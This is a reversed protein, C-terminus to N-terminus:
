DKPEVLSLGAMMRDLYRIVKQYTLPAARHESLTYLSGKYRWAYLVHWQDADQNVTYVTVRTGAVTKTGQSDSFCPVKRRVVKNKSVTRTEICTPISTRGPYGRLNVHLEGSIAGPGTEQWVFGELYSRDRSVSDLNNYRGKIQGSLPDPLWSPCYVPADIRNALQQWGSVWAKPCSPTSAAAANRAEGAGGCGTVLLAIAALALGLLTQRFVARRRPAISPGLVCADPRAARGSPV